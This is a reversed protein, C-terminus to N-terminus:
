FWRRRGGDEEPEWVLQGGRLRDLIREIETNSWDIVERCDNKFDRSIDVSQIKIGVMPVKLAPSLRIEYDVWDHLRVMSTLLVFAIEAEKLRERIVSSLTPFARIQRGAHKLDDVVDRRRSGYRELSTELEEIKAQVSGRTEEEMIKDDKFRIRWRVDPLKSDRLRARARWLEENLRLFEDGQIKSEERAVDIAASRPVSLNTWKTRGIVQDLTNVFREYEANETWAHSIFVKVM